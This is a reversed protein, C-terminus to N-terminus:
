GALARVTYAAKSVNDVAGTNKLLTEFEDESLSGLHKEAVLRFSKRTLDDQETKFKDFDAMLAAQHAVAADALATGGKALLATQDTAM